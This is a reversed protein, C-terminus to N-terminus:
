ENERDEAPQCLYWDEALMDAQCAIWRGDDYEPTTVAFYPMALSGGRAQLRLSQNLGDWYRRAVSKGAKLRKLAESFDFDPEMKIVKLMDLSILAM